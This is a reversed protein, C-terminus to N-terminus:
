FEYIGTIYKEKFYIENMNLKLISDSDIVGFFIGQKTAFCYENLTSTKIIDYVSDMLKTSHVIQKDSIKMVYVYGLNGGMLLREDDIQQMAFVSESLTISNLLKMGNEIDYEMLM